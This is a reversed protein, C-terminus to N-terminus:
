CLFDALKSEDGNADGQKEEAESWRELFPLLVIDVM